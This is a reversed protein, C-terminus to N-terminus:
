HITKGHTSPIVQMNLTLSWIIIACMIPSLENHRADHITAAITQAVDRANFEQIMDDYGLYELYEFVQEFYIIRSLSEM